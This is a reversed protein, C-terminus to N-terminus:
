SGDRRGGEGSITEEKAVRSIVYLGTYHTHMNIESEQQPRLGLVKDFILTEVEPHKTLLDAAEQAKVIEVVDDYTPKPMTLIARKVDGCAAVAMVSVVAQGLLLIAEFGCRRSYYVFACFVFPTHAIIALILGMYFGAPSPNREGHLLTRYFDPPESM